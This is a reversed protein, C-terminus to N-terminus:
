FDSRLYDLKWRLSLIGLNLNQSDVFAYNNEKKKRMNIMIDYFINNAPRIPRVQFAGSGM